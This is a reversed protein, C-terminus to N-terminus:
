QTDEANIKRTIVYQQLISLINNWVWYLVLGAPFGAFLVLFVWPLFKMMTAQAPDSPTPNMKQQLVMTISMLLPLAGIHFFSDAPLWEILGFFEFINAPDPVSLDKIWGYFPAHRMEITVFLVKYLAFFIPMQVIMPLCGSAPNIKKKKYMAMMEQNMQLRDDKYREKIAEMEPMLKKMQGMSKYSKNALPFMVLKVCVTLALIALGFNGLLEYFFHLAKFIPKTLFYLIGFDVSRDFLTINYQEAYDELVALQKAGAFFQTTTAHTGGAALAQPKGLYDSQFRNIGNSNYYQYNSKFGGELAPALATLWYKDTAGVWGTQTEFSMKGDDILDDYTFEHIEQNNVGLLGEHLILYATKDSTYARNILGYPALSVSAGSNNVVNQKVTIMYKDDISFTQTFLLGETNDWSLTVPTAPTLATHDAKWYTSKGPVKITANTSLWGLEAFYSQQNGTPSLLVVEPSNEDQEAHYDKLILDDVRAGRLAISGRLAATDITVRESQTLLQERPADALAEALMATDGEVSISPSEAVIRAQQEAALAAEAEAQPGAYFVQWIVLVLSSLLLAIVLNKTDSSTDQM